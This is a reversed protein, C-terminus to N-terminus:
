PTPVTVLIANSLASAGPSFLRLQLNWTGPTLGAPAGTHPPIPFPLPFAPDSFQCVQGTSGGTASLGGQVIPSGVASVPTWVLETGYTDIGEGEIAFADGPVLTTDSTGAPGCQNLLSTLVPTGPTSSITIPFSNTFVTGAANKLRVTTPVSATFGSALRAIVRTSSASWMYIAPIDPGGQSVLVDAASTAPLNTGYITIMQGGAVQDGPVISTITPAPASVPACVLAISDVVAGQGGVVGTVAEGAPCDIPGFPTGSANPLPAPGNTIPGGTPLQCRPSVSGVVAGPGYPASTTGWFGVMIQGAPCAVDANPTTGGGFKVPHVGNSCLLQGSTLAYDIYGFAENPPGTIAARLGNAFVGPGCSLAGTPPYAGGGPGGAAPTSAVTQVATAGGIYGPATVSAVVDYAGIASPAPGGNYTVNVALGAPVTAVGVSKATGDFIASLNSLLVTAPLTPATITFPNSVATAISTPGAASALLQYTGPVDVSLTPFVAVGSANTMALGGDLTAGGPTVLSLTVVVGALSAGTNDFARVTVAPVIPTGPAAVTPQQLFFLNSGTPTVIPPETAGPPDLPDVGQASIGPTVQTAPNFAPDISATSGDANTYTINNSTDEDYVRLTIRAVEGPALWLTANTESPDNPDPVGSTPTVFVPNPVNAILVNRTEVRLDCQLAVPTKYTKYLILQTQLGAPITANALFLNVNFAATTNGTNSVTWTVDSIAGNEIDPNEIDPNEIDPNEIDPNEIDPNALGLNEIDPNAVVVNEIDPNEIDPNEIDPNEIDPNEIDPNEIDPNYIEANEIDPNEIDPNEIDPNEIDPNEIDPNLIVRGTLGNTVATGGVGSVETVSVQVQAKPNTSTVFLTRSATSRAPVRVDLVTVPAPSSATYPPLPFQEFSARGGTPQALVQMRFTRTEATQNTAFVVFGRQLTSSLPKANGPAGVLLGGGIRATYINQNRSGANGATCVPVTQSPDFISPGNGASGPPAYNAWNGDLPARVDRNDTWVAHFVPFDPSPATNYAWGGSGTPVFAPAPAVDIYDGIFPVTGLKFMPLNPPNVQLSELGTTPSRYGVLYDSVRVSPAFSPTAGPTGLAARIDITQRKNNASVLSDDVFPGFVNARTERLDYFVLLLKGGAFTLSPMLQHGFLELQDAPPQDDVVAPTTFTAGDTTTTILIRADGSQPDPRAVALGRETWAIYARGSGDFTMSPFANTRFSTATTGQDFNQVTAATTPNAARKRRHEAIRDLNAQSTGSARLRRAQGPPDFYGAGQPLRAVMIADSDPAAPSSFRRYAVFVAGNQPHIAITAGQNIADGPSSVRIPQSWTVGCDTSRKLFIESRLTDGEGTISSYAVYVAGAAVYLNGDDPPLNNGAGNGRGANRHGNRKVRGAAATAPATGVACWGSNGGRPIDVAMWPKDLFPAGAAGTSQVVMSTGLMRIPDGNEKSNRDVFRSVFIGSKGNDGRDFVLGSYYFLGSTGARVVPDAAAQYGKLPSAVGEASTDQPYGPLLTSSWRQGGDFTKYISLWADGTEAGDPLGPVDVTRYDNSGGLLHLPNRTSAAVSPENQRQLFPDGEPWETGSVMNTNRGPIQASISAGAWLILACGLGLLLRRPISVTRVTPPM